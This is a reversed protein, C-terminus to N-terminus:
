AGQAYDVDNISFAATITATKELMKAVSCYKQMSLDVAREVKGPDLDGTLRFTVHMRTFVAPTQDEARQADVEVELGELNQRAKRLIEIVDVSSCAALAMAVTQMPSTGQGRGGHAPSTDFTVTNGAENTGLMQFGDDIRKLHVKM